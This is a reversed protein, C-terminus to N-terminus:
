CTLLVFNLWIKVWFVRKILVDTGWIRDLLAEHQFFSTLMERCGCKMRAFFFFLMFLMLTPVESNLLHRVLKRWKSPKWRWFEPQLM